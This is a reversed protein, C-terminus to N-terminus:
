FLREQRRLTGFTGINALSLSFRFQNENRVALAFRRYEASVGICSWNYSTQITGYQVFDFNDDFGFNAAASLGRKNPHGYGLLVRFQNFRDPGPIPNTVFIEGPAHFFTHSGGVFFERLRWDVLMTSGSIRGKKTDYDLNWQADTHASTQIRLRSIVPSFSRPETLFAIGTFEATTTLVNRRGNVVAGGFDQNFFGKQAVEWSVIQRVSGARECPNLEENDTAQPNFTSGEEIEQEQATQSPQNTAAPANCNGGDKLRKAFVRNTIAYEIENTDSLLDRSDFRIVNQFNEVGNVFRYVVKPEIVHKLKRGFIPREFIRGIAPARIEVGTQLARRNMPEALAIGLGGNPKLQETYYTDRLSLEPRLSWGRM